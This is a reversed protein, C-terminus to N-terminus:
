SRIAAVLAELVGVSVIETECDTSDADYFMIEGHRSGDPAEVIYYWADGTESTTTLLHTITM